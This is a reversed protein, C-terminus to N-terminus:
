PGFFDSAKILTKKAVNKKICVHKTHLNLKKPMIIRFFHEFISFLLLKFFMAVRGGYM